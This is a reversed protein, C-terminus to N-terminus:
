KSAITLEGAATLFFVGMYIKGLNGRIHYCRVSIQVLDDGLQQGTSWCLGSVCCEVGMLRRRSGKWLRVRKGEVEGWGRVVGLRTEM